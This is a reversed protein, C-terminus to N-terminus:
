LHKIKIRIKLSEAIQMNHKLKTFRPGDRTSHGKSYIRFYRIPFSIIVSEAKL